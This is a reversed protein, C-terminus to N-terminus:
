PECLVDLVAFRGDKMAALCRGIAADLQSADAVTEGHGGYAAALAAYAPTPTIDPGLFKNSTVAAGHPYYKHINWSQSVLGRNNCVVILIPM